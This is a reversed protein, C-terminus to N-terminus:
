GSSAMDARSAGEMRLQSSSFSEGMGPQQEGANEEVGKRWNCATHASIASEKVALPMVSGGQRLVCLM